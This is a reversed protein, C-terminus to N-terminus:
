LDYQLSLISRYEIIILPIGDLVPAVFNLTIFDLKLSWKDAIPWVLAGPRLDLYFGVRGSEDLINDSLMISAGGSISMRVRKQYFYIHTGLGINLAKEHREEDLVLNNWGNLELQLIPAIYDFAYGINLGIDRSNWIRRPVFENGVPALGFETTLFLGKNNRHDIKPEELYWFSFVPQISVILLLLFRLM